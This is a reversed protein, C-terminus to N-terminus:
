SSSTCRFWQVSLDAGLGLLIFLLCQLPANYREFAFGVAYMYINVFYTGLLFLVLLRQRRMILSIAAAATCLVLIVKHLPVVQAGDVHFVPEWYFISRIMYAPKKILYSTLFSRLDRQIWVKQRYKAMVGDRELSVYRAYRPQVEGDPQCYDRYDRAVVADVNAAYDLEEDSPYGSGQYTGLLIPNGSGYTLPIFAHFQVYNRISWPLMFCFLATVLIAGQRLLLKRDYGKLLLYLAAPLAYVLINARLLFGCLYAAYLGWFSRRNPAEGMRLTFYVCATLALMYPTETLILNDMWVFDPRFLPLIALIGCWKPAFLCVSRYIYWATLTGMTIWLLKLVAWLATETGFLRALFGILFTMGPMIQASPWENHMSIIGTQMFRIGSNIYSADDSWLTYSVGLQMLALLREFFLLAIVLFAIRHRRIWTSDM